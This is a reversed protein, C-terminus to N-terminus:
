QATFTVTGDAAAVVTWGTTSAAVDKVGGITPATGTWGTATQTAKVEVTATKGTPDYTVDKNAATETLVSAMVEAYAARLNAEDTAERSKELQSVLYYFAM